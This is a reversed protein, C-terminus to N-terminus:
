ASKVAIRRLQLTLQPDVIGPRGKNELNLTPASRVRGCVNVAATQTEGPAFSMAHDVGNGSVQLTRGSYSLPSLTFTMSVQICRRAAGELLYLRLAVGRDAPLWGNSSVGLIDWAAHMPSVPRMLQLLGDSSHAIVTGAIEVPFGRGATILYANSPLPPAGPGYLISGSDRDVALRPTAYYSDTVDGFTYAGAIDRNWFESDEWLGRSAGVGEINSVLQYVLSGDPLSKDVWEVNALTGNGFGVGSENGHVVRWLANVTEVASCAIVVVAVAMLLRERSVRRASIAIAVGILLVVVGPLVLRAAGPDSRPGGAGGFLPQIWGYFGALGPSVEYFFANHVVQYHTTGILAAVAGSGVMIVWGRHRSCLLAACMGVAFLPVLYFLYREQIVGEDFGVTIEAVQLTFALVAMLTMCAFAHVHRAVPSLLSDLTFGVTLAVPVVALGIALFSLYSRALDLTEGGASIGNLTDGYYGLSSSLKGTLLLPVGAFIGIAAVASLIAHKRLLRHLIARLDLGEDRAAVGYGLEHVLMAAVLIPVLLLLQPRGYAAVLIAALAVLDRRYNPQALSRQMALFAWACAPFAAVETFEALSITMWPAFAVLAAAFYAAWRVRVVERGLLYVPIASSALLLPNWLHALRFATVNGFLGWFPSILLPYLQNLRQGGYYSTTIPSLSHAIGIALHSYSVEDPEYGVIKRSFLATVFAALM